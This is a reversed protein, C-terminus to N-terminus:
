DEIEELNLETEGYRKCLLCELLFKEPVKYHKGNIYISKALLARLMSDRDLRASCTLIKRTIVPNQLEILDTFDTM